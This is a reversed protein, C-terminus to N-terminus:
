KLETLPNHPHNQIDVDIVVGLALKATNSQDAM